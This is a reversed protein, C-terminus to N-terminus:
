RHVVAVAVLFSAIASVSGLLLLPRAVWRALDPLLHGDLPLGPVDRAEVLPDLFAGTPPRRDSGIAEASGGPTRAVDAAAALQRSEEVALRATAEPRADDGLAQVADRAPGLEGDGSAIFDVTAGRLAREFREVPTGSPLAAVVRRAAELEGIWVLLEIRPLDASGGAAPHQELWTRAASPMTPRDEGTVERWRDRDRRQVWRFLDLARAVRRPRLLGAVAFTLVAFVVASGIVVATVVVPGPRAAVAASVLTAEVAVGVIAGVTVRRREVDRLARLLALNRRM